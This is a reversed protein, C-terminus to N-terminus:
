NSSEVESILTKTEIYISHYEERSQKIVVTSSQLQSKNDPFGDPSLTQVSSITTNVTDTTQTVESKIKDLKSQLATKDGVIADIRAQIKAM